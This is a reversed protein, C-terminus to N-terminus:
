SFVKEPKRFGEGNRDELIGETVRKAEVPKDIQM